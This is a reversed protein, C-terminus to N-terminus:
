HSVRSLTASSIDTEEIIQAYTKGDLILKAAKLRQAFQELEGITFLDEFFIECEPISELQIFAEYLEKIMNETIKTEM